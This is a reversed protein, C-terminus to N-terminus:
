FGLTLRVITVLVIGLVIGATAAILHKTDNSLTMTLGELNPRNNTPRNVNEM